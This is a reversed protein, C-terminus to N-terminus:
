AERWPETHIFDHASDIIGMQDMWDVDDTASISISPARDEVTDGTLKVMKGILVASVVHQDPSPELADWLEAAETYKRQWAKLEEIQQAFRRVTDEPRETEDAM